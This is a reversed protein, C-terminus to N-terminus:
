QKEAHSRKKGTLDNELDQIPIALGDFNELYSAVAAIHWRLEGVLDKRARLDAAAAAAKAPDIKLSCSSPLVVFFAGERGKFFRDGCARRIDDQIDVPIVRRVQERYPTAVANFSVPTYDTTLVVEMKRRIDQDEINRLQDGGFTLSWTAPNIGIGYIQSAQYAAIIFQEDSVKPDGAWGALAQDSYRRTTAYYARATDFFEMQNRLEPALQVLMRQTAQKDLRSENWNSVQTGLFVGIVLIVFEIAIATWSQAKLNGILRRLMM